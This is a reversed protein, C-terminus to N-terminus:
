QTVQIINTGTDGTLSNGSATSVVVLRRVLATGPGSTVTATLSSGDTSAAINSVVISTDISNSTGIFRITTVGGLNAGNITIVTAAGRVLSNPSISSIHPGSKVAINSIAAIPLSTVPAGPQRQISVGASIAAVTMVIDLANGRQISVGFSVAAIPENNSIPATHRKISVGAGIAAAVVPPQASPPRAVSLSMSALASDFDQSQVAVSAEGFLSTDGISTARVLIPFSPLSPATYLGSTTITGVAPSGGEIGNVSWRVSPDGQIVVVANFLLTAGPAVNASAPQVRISKLTFPVSTTASGRPTTITVAGTTAGQPVEAIVTTSNSQIVRATVGNFSVENVGSGFGTGFFTIHDGPGGTKPSFDLIQLIDGALRRIATFNGSADYEYIATEGTPLVVRVLRGNDDYFYEVRGGQQAAAQSSFALCIFITAATLFAQTSLRKLNSPTM